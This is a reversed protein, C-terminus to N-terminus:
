QPPPIEILRGLGFRRSQFEPDINVVNSTKKWGSLPGSRVFSKEFQDFLLKGTPSYGRFKVVGYSDDRYFQDIKFTM